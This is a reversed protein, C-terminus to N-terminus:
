QSDATALSVKSYENDRENAELNANDQQQKPHNHEYVAAAAPLVGSSQQKQYKLAALASLAGIVLVIILITPDKWLPTSKNTPLATEHTTIPNPNQEAGLLSASVQPAIPATASESAIRLPERSLYIDVIKALQLLWRQHPLKIYPMPAFVLLENHSGQQVNKAARGIEQLYASPEQLEDQNARAQVSAFGTLEYWYDDIAAIPLFQPQLAFWKALEDNDLKSYDTLIALERIVIICLSMLIPKVQAPSTKIQAAIHTCVKAATAMDGFVTDTVDNRHQLSAAVTVFNMANYHRMEKVAGRTFLKKHVTSVQHRQEYALLAVVIAQVSATMGLRTQPLSLQTVDALLSAM